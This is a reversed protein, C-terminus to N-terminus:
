SEAASDAPELADEPQNWATKSRRGYLRLSAELVEVARQLPLAILAAPSTLRVHASEDTVDVIADSRNLATIFAWQKGHSLGSLLQWWSLLGLDSTTPVAPDARVAADAVDILHSYKMPPFKFAQPDGLSERLQVLARLQQLTDQLHLQQSSPLGRAFTDRYKADEAAIWYSRRLREDRSAPALLYIALAASEIATRLVPYYASMPLSMEKRAILQLDTDVALLSDAAAAMATIHLSGARWPGLYRADLGLSSRHEIVSVYPGDLREKAQAIRPSLSRWLAVAIAESEPALTRNFDFPSPDESAM